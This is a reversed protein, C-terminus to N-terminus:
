QMQKCRNANSGSIQFNIRPNLGFLTPLQGGFALSRTRQIPMKSPAGLNQVDFVIARMREPKIHCSGALFISFFRVCHSHVAVELKMHASIPNQIERHCEECVVPRRELGGIIELAM